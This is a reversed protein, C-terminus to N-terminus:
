SQKTMVVEAMLLHVIHNTVQIALRTQQQGIILLRQKKTIM